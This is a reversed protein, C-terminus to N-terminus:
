EGFQKLGESVEYAYSERNTNVVQVFMEAGDAYGSTGYYYNGAVYSSGYIGRSVTTMYEDGPLKVIGDYEVPFYVATPEFRNYKGIPSVTASYVVFYKNNNGFDTGQTKATLLYEGAITLDTANMKDKYDKAIASEVQDKADAYLIQRYEESIDSLKEIVEYESYIEFGDGCEATYRGRHAEVIDMYCNFPNVYGPTRYWTGDLQSNGEVWANGGYKLTGSSNVINNFSVPFYIKSASFKGDSSSVTGRWIIYVANQGNVDGEAAAPAEDTYDYSEKVKADLMIYGAYELGSLSMGSEYEEATRAYIADEAESKLESLFDDTLDAYSEVYEDLGAVEYEKEFTDPVEGYKEIYYTVDGPISVTVIDGNKLGMMKDCTFDYESMRYGTYVMGAKGNPAIGSFSVELGEFADFKSVETLGEVDYTGDKCKVKCKLYSGLEEDVRWEYSITDGNSLGSSQELSVSVFEKLNEVAPVDEALEGYESKAQRTYSIQERYKREVARWDISIRATGYGDYGDAEITMYKDLDITRRFNGVICIIVGLAIAVAGLGVLFKKFRKKKNKGSSKEDTKQIKPATPPQGTGANGNGTGAATGAWGAAVGAGDTNDLRTGCNRCFRAEEANEIGCNSCFM